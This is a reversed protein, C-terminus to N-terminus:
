QLLQELFIVSFFNLFFYGFFLQRSFFNGLFFIKLFFLNKFFFEGFFIDLFIVGKLFSLFDYFFFKEFVNGTDRFFNHLFCIKRFYNINLFNIQTSKTQGFKYKLSNKLNISDTSFGFKKKLFVSLDKLGECM